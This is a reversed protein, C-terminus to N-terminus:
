FRGATQCNNVVQESKYEEAHLLIGFLRSYTEPTLKPPLFGMKLTELVGKENGSALVRSLSPPIDAKPLPVVWQIKAFQEPM